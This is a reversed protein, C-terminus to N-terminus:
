LEQLDEVVRGILGSEVAMNQVMLVDTVREDHDLGREIAVAEVVFATLGDKEIRCRDLGLCDKKEVGEEVNEDEMALGHGLPPFRAVLILLTVLVEARQELSGLLIGLVEDLVSEWQGSENNTIRATRLRTEQQRLKVGTRCMLRARIATNRLSRLRYERVIDAQLRKHVMQHLQSNTSRALRTSPHSVRTTPDSPQLMLALLAIHHLRNYSSFSDNAVEM